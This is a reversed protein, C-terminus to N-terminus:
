EICNIPCLGTCISWVKNSGKKFCRLEGTPSDISTCGNYEVNKYTFPFQCSGGDATTCDDISKTLFVINNYQFIQVVKSVFLNKGLCKLTIDKGGDIKQNEKYINKKSLTYKWQNGVLAPCHISYGSPGYIGVIDSNTVKPGILWGKGAQYSILNKDYNYGDQKWVNHGNINGSKKM